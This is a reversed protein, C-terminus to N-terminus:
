PQRIPVYWHGRLCSGLHQAQQEGRREGDKCEALEPRTRISPNSRPGCENEDAIVGGRGLARSREDAGACDHRSAVAYFAKIIRDDVKRRILHTLPLIGGPVSRALM